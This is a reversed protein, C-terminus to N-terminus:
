KIDSTNIYVAKTNIEKYEVEFGPNDLIVWCLNRMTKPDRKYQDLFGDTFVMVLEAARRKYKPDNKLLDWCPKLQTGGRGKVTATKMDRKLSRVDTYEDISQIKTDCQVVVIKLPKKALALSYVESLCMKLQTDSMSGSSDIFAVIYDVNDYKDKDTRAIRDQAILVNKNAYAQRRDEPSIATGIVKKLAKKWDTSTKYLGELKSKLYGAEKGKLKNATRLASDKWEKELAADAADGSDYGESNAIQDGTKRDVMGGPQGPVGNLADPGQCDEPRVVGQNEDSKSTRSKGSQQIADQLEKEIDDDTQGASGPQGPKSKSKNQGSQGSGSQDTSPDNIEDLADEIEQDSKGESQMQKVIEKIRNIADNYGQEYDASKAAELIIDKINRM